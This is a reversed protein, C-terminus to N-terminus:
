EKEDETITIQDDIINMEKGLDYYEVDCSDDYREEESDIGGGDDNELLITTIEISFSFDIQKIILFIM